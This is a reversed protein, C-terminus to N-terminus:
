ITPNQSPTVAWLGFRRNVADLTARVVSDAEDERVLCTGLYSQEDEGDFELVCVTVARRGGVQVVGCDELFLVSQNKVFRQVAAITAEAVVRLRGRGTGPGQAVGEAAAGHFQLRVKSEVTRGQRTVAFGAVQLREGEQGSPEPTLLAVSIKKHDITVGQAMLLSEVDRVLQKPNRDGSALVHIEEIEGGPSFMVRASIVDKIRRILAEYARGKAEADPPGM